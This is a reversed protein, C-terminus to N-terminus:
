RLRFDGVSEALSAIKDAANRWSSYTSVILQTRSATASLSFETHKLQNQVLPKDVPNGLQGLFKFESIEAQSNSITKLVMARCRENWRNTQEASVSILDGTNMEWATWRSDWDVWISFISAREDFFGFTHERWYRSTYGHTFKERTFGRVNHYGPDPGFAAELSYRKLRGTKDYIAVVENGYGMRKGNDFTVVHHGDDSLYAKAPGEPHTLETNWLLNRNDPTQEVSYVALRAKTDKVAPTVHAVFKGTRSFSDYESAIRPFDCVPALVQTHLIGIVAVAIVCSISQKMLPSADQGVGFPNATIGDNVM